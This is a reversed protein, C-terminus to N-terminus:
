GTMARSTFPFSMFRIWQRASAARKANTPPVAAEVKPGGNPRQLVTTDNERAWATHTRTAIKTLESDLLHAYMETTRVSTHGLLKGVEALTWREGWWGCLLSTACTHRLLHWWSRRTGM